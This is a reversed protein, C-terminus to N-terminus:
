GFEEVSRFVEGLKERLAFCASNGVSLLANRGVSGFLIRPMIVDM